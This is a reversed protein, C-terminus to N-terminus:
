GNKDGSLKDLLAKFEADTLMRPLKPGIFGQEKEELEINEYNDGSNDDLDDNSETASLPSPLPLCPSINACNHQKPSTCKKKNEDVATDMVLLSSKKEEEVLSDNKVANEKKDNVEM